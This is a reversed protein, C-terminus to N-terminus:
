TIDAHFVLLKLNTLFCHLCQKAYKEVKQDDTLEM